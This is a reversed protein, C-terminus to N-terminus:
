EFYQMIAIDQNILAHKTKIIFNLLHTYGGKQSFYHVYLMKCCLIGIADYVSCLCRIYLM